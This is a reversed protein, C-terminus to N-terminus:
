KIRGMTIANGNNIFYSPKHQIGDWETTGPVGPDGQLGPVGQQGEKGRPGEAGVIEALKESVTFSDANLAVIQFVGGAVDVVTDGVKVNVAPSLSALPAVGNSSIRNSCFRIAFAAKKASEAAESASNQASTAAATAETAKTTAATASNNAKVQAQLTASKAELTQALATTASDKANSAIQSYSKASQEAQEARNAASKSENAHSTSATAASVADAKATQAASAASESKKQAAIAADVNAATTEVSDAVKQLTGDDSAAAVKQVKEINDVLTKIQGGPTCIEDIPATIRGASFLQPYCKGGRLDGGLMQIDPIHDATARINDIEGAVKVIDEANQTVPEVHKVLEAFAGTRDNVLQANQLTSEHLREVTERDDKANAANEQAVEAATEARIAAETAASQADTVVSELNTVIDAGLNGYHVIGPKLDGEDTQILALNRRLGEITLAASDLETNIAVTDVDGQEDLTFDHEREYKQPQAM